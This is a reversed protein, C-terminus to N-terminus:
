VIWSNGTHSCSCSRLYKLSVHFFECQHFVIWSSGIYSFTRVLESKVPGHKLVYHYHNIFRINVSLCGIRFLGTKKFLCSCDDLKEWHSKLLKIYTRQLAVFIGMRTSFWEAAGQAVAFAHCVIRLAISSNVCFFFRIAAGLAVIKVFCRLLCSHNWLDSLYM